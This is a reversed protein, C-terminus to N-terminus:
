LNLTYVLFTQGIIIRLNYKTTGLHIKSFYRSSTIGICHQSTNGLGMLKNLRSIIKDHYDWPNAQIRRWLSIHDKKHIIQTLYVCWEKEFKNDFLRNTADYKICIADLFKFFGSHEVRFSVILIECKLLKFMRIYM